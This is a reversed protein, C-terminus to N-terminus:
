LIEPVGDYGLFEVHVVKPNHRLKAMSFRQINEKAARVKGSQLCVFLKQIM